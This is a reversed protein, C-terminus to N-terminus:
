LIVALALEFLPHAQGPEPLVPAEHEWALDAGEEVGGVQAVARELAYLRAGAHPFIQTEVVQAVSSKLSPTLTLTTESISPCAEIIM